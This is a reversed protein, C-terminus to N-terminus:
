NAWMGWIGDNAIMQLAGTIGLKVFITIATELKTEPLVAMPGSRDPLVLECAPMRTQSPTLAHPTTQKTGPRFLSLVAQGQCRGNPAPSLM